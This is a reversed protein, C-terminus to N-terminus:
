NVNVVKTGAIWDHICRKDKRFIFLVNILSFVSGVVPIFGILSTLLYRLFILKLFTPKENNLDVIKTKLIWKGLTQGRDYLLYGHIALFALYGFFGFVLSDVTDIPQGELARDWTGMYFMVVIIVLTPLLGDIIAGGLRKWRSALEHSKSPIGIDAKPPSYPNDTM